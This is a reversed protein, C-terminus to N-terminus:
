VQLGLLCAHAVYHSGTQFCGFWGLGFWVFVLYIPLMARDFYFDNRRILFELIYFVGLEM